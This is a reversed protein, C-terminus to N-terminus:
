PSAFPDARSHPRQGNLFHYPTAAFNGEVGRSNGGDTDRTAPANEQNLRRVIEARLSPEINYKEFLLNLQQNDPRPNVFALGFFEILHVRYEGILKTAQEHNLYAEGRKREADLAM